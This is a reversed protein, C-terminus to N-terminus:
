VFTFTEAKSFMEEPKVQQSKKKKLPQDITNKQNHGHTFNEYATNM